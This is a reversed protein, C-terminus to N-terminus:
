PMPVLTSDYGPCDVFYGVVSDRTSAISISCGPPCNLQTGLWFCAKRATVGIADVTALIDADLGNDAQYKEIAANTKAGPMGDIPGVDYGKAQLAQQLETFMRKIEAEPTIVPVEDAWAFAPLVWMALVLIVNRMRGAFRSM